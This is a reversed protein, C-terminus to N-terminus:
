QKRFKNLKMVGCLIGVPQAAAALGLNLAQLHQDELHSYIILQLDELKM